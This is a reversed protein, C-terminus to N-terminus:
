ADWGLNRAMRELTAATQQQEAEPIGDVLTARLEAVVEALGDHASRGRETLTFAGDSLVWGSDLLEELEEAPTEDSDTPPLEALATELQDTTAPGEVLVVLIRWQLRTLGHEELAASFREEVLRDVLALWHALSRNPGM